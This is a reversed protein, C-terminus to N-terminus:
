PSSREALGMAPPVLVQLAEAEIEMTATFPQEQPLSEDDLRIPGRPWDVSIRRGRWSETPPPGAEPADLWALMAERRDPPLSIADLWGDGPEAQPALPLNPGFLGINMVELFLTEVERGTGDITLCARLPEAASLIARFAARGAEVGKLGKRDAREVARAFAGFGAAEVIRRRGWPGEAYALNLPRRAAMRWGAAFAEPSEWSGLARALNNATGLPLIALPLRRNELRTAVKGVTGDGGAVVLLGAAAELEERFSDGRTNCARATLGAGQLLALLAEPSHGEDGASPNHFLTTEM